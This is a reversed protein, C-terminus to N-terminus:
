ALAATANRANIFKHLQDLSNWGKDSSWEALWQDELSLCECSSGYDEYGAVACGPCIHEREAYVEVSANLKSRSLADVRRQVAEMAVNHDKIEFSTISNNVTIIVYM